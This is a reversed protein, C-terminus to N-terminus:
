MSYCGKWHKGLTQPGNRLRTSWCQPREFDTLTSYPACLQESERLLHYRFFNVVHLAWNVDVQGTNSFIPHTYATSYAMQQSEPFRLIVSAPTSLGANLSIHSLALQITLLLSDSKVGKPRKQFVRDLVGTMNVFSTLKEM